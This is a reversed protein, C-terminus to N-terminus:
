GSTSKDVDTLEEYLRTLLEKLEREVSLLRELVLVDVERYQNCYRAIQNINAGIKNVEGLYKRFIKSRRALREPSMREPIKYGLVSRRIFDSLTIGKAQAIRELREAEEPSFRITKRVSLRRM